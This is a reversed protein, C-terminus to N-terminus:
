VVSTRAGSPYAPDLVTIADTLRCLCQVSATLGYSSGRLNDTSSRYADVLGSVPSGPEASRRAVAATQRRLATALSRYLSMQTESSVSGGLAHVAAWDDGIRFIERAAVFAIALTGANCGVSAM